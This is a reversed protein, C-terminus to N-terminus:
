RRPHAADDRGALRRAPVVPRPERDRRTALGSGALILALGFIMVPTLREGLAVVGALVAVAPNVYTIISARSPGAEAILFFYLAMAIATCLVGLGLLSWIVAPSPMRHPATAVAVPLLGLASIASSAGVGAISDVGPMKQAAIMPGAAYCVAAGLICAAGVLELPHGALQIGLLAVVGALGALMGLFRRADPRDHPAFRLSLLAICLPVSSIIIATLSSSIFQEGAPILLFPIGMEVAAFAIVPAWAGRLTSLTGRRWALPLLILAGLSVRSWGVFAPSVEGVAVKIFFYPLGWLLGVGAFAGWARPTL